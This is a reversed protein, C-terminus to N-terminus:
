GGQQNHVTVYATFTFTFYMYNDKSVDTLYQESSISIKNFEFSGNSSNLETLEELSRSILGLANYGEDRDETKVKVQLEYNLSKEKIGDMYEQITRGGALAYISISNSDSNYENFVPLGTNLSALYDALREQLDM